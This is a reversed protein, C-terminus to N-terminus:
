AIARRDNLSHLVGDVAVIRDMIASIDNQDPNHYIVEGSQYIRLESRIDTVKFGYIQGYELIFLANYIMLQEMKATIVGTKLDHIRLFGTREDFSISDATGFFNDSYYLVVEPSMGFTVADNVYTIVNTFIDDFPLHSVVAEPIGRELLELSASKKDFKSMKVKHAIYKRAVDHLITGISSMYSNVYKRLIDDNSDNLWYPSSPSFIAHRGAQNLHQNFNM